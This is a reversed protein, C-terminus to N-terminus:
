DKDENGNQTEAHNDDRVMEFYDNLLKRELNFLAVVLLGSRGMMELYDQNIEKLTPGRHRSHANRNKM